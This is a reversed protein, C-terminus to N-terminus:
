AVNHFHSRGKSLGDRVIKEIEDPDSTIGTLNFHGSSTILVDDEIRVGGVYLYKKMTKEEVVELREPHNELFEKILFPNFYIGPENTVVMGEELKRRLRLYRFLPDPDNYNARGGVDHTDMGLLHGLGHPFFCLSARRKLIDEESFTSRFIGLRLFHKILIRHALLHLEDWEAGPKMEAMVQTQMDLVADYIERHEKTFKGNIPFCRTVDATYNGWEAGADILVSHKNEMSDDNKVYHLTSCSTGSCCIPDYGQNKSGQRIAHYTFEAHMHGENKEIPLASMVALHCKDTIEAARRLLQIEYWDKIMRAEDLAYFLDPDASILKESLKSSPVGDKDTTYLKYGAKKEFEADLDKMYLVQDVDFKEYAEDVSMPLGSWMVDDDDVDPLLLTLKETPFDLILSSGPIDVGTLYYFYRNQRFPKTQDCYKISELTGGAIFLATKEEHSPGKRGLFFGKVKLAHSKAPYKHGELSELITSVKEEVQAHHKAGYPGRFRKAHKIASFILVATCVVLGLLSISM